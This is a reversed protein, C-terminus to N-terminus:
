KNKYTYPGTIKIFGEDNFKANFFDNCNKCYVEMDDEVINERIDEISWGNLDLKQTDGDEGLYIEMDVMARLRLSNHNAGCNPCVLKTM